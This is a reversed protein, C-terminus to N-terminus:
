KGDEFNTVSLLFAFVVVNDESFDAKESLENLGGGSDYFFQIGMAEVEAKIKKILSM